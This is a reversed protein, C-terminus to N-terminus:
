DSGSFLAKWPADNRKGGCSYHSAYITGDARHRREGAVDRGVGLELETAEAVKVVTARSTQRSTGRRLWGQVPIFQGSMHIYVYRLIRLGPLPDVKGRSWASWPCIHTADSSKAKCTQIDSHLQLQSCLKDSLNHGLDM